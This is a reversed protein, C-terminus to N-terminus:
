GPRGLRWQHRGTRLVDGRREAPALTRLLASKRLGTMESFEALSLPLDHGQLQILVLSLRESAEAHDSCAMKRTPVSEPIM